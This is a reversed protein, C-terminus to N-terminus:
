LLVSSLDHEFGFSRADVTDRHRIGIGGFM